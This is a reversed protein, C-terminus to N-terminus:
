KFLSQQNKASYLIWSFKTGKNDMKYVKLKFPYKVWFHYNQLELFFDTM